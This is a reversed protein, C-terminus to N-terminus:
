KNYRSQLLSHVGRHGPDGGNNAMASGGGTGHRRTLERSFAASYANLSEVAIKLRREAAALLAVEGELRQVLPELSVWTKVLGTASHPQGTLAIIYAETLRARAFALQAKRGILDAEVAGLIGAVYTRYQTCYQYVEGLHYLDLDVARVGGFDPAALEGFESLTIDSSMVSASEDLLGPTPAAEIALPLVGILGKPFSTRPQSIIRKGALLNRSQVGADVEETEARIQERVADGIDPRFIGASKNSM